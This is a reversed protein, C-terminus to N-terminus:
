TLPERGQAADSGLTYMASAVGNANYSYNTPTTSVSGGGQEVVWDITVGPVVKGLSDKVQVVLLTGLAKNALGVQNDGDLITLNSSARQEPPLTPGDECAALVLLGVLTAPLVRKYTSEGSM